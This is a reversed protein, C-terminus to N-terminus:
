GKQEVNIEVIKLKVEYSDFDLVLYGSPNISVKELRNNSPSALAKAVQLLGRYFNWPIGFKDATVKAETWESPVIKPLDKPRIFGFSINSQANVSCNRCLKGSTILAGCNVCVSTVAHQQLTCFPCMGHPPLKYPAQFGCQKCTQAMKLGLSARIKSKYTYVRNTRARFACLATQKKVSSRWDIWLWCLFGCCPGIALYLGIYVTRM